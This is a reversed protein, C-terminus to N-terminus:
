NAFQFSSQPEFLPPLEGNSVRKSCRLISSQCLFQSSIICKKSHWVTAIFQLGFQSSLRSLQVSGQAQTLVPNEWNSMQANKSIRVGLLLAALPRLGANVISLKHSLDTVEALGGPKFRRLRQLEKILDAIWSVPRVYHDSVVNQQSLDQLEVIKGLQVKIDRDMAVGAKVTDASELLPILPSIGGM